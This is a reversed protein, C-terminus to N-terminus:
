YVGYEKTADVWEKVLAPNCEDMSSNPGMIFGGNKGLIACMKRTQERIEERSGMQLLSVPFCGGICMVDGVTEKLKAINSRQFQGATKGAPLERLYELREDWVGEYFVSPTIGANVLDTMLAKLQPWYFTKFQEISMFGDSGRHLPIFAFKAGFARSAAIANKVSIKRAKEQAALLKEPRRYMDMFVGRMGRLTDSVFDFPALLFVGRGMGAPFGLAAMREANRRMQPLRQAYFRAVKALAEFSAGLSPDNLQILSSLAPYGMLLISITPLHALGGLKEFARPLYKRLAFDTPDDLFEDYDEAKMYEGELFQMPKDPPLGYGPWKTQRDGLMISPAAPFMGVGTAADPQIYLACKELLEQAKELDTELEQHTIGGFRALMYGFYTSVPIRDPQRLAFADDLRKTREAVLEEPTKSM